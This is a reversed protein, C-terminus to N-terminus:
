PVGVTDGLPYGGFAEGLLVEMSDVYGQLSGTPVSHGGSTDAMVERVLCRWSGSTGELHPPYWGLRPEGLVPPYEGPEPFFRFEFLSLM